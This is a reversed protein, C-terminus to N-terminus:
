RKCFRDRMCGNRGVTWGKSEGAGEEGRGKSSVDLGAKGWRGAADGQGISEWDSGGGLWGGKGRTDVCGISVRVRV